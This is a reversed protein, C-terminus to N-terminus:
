RTSGPPAGLDREASIKDWALYAGYGLFMAALIFGVAILPGRRRTGFRAVHDPLSPFRTDPIDQAISVQAEPARRPPPEPADPADFVRPSVRRPPPEPADPADFVRPSVGAEVARLVSALAPATPKAPNVEPLPAPARAPPAPATPKAPNVEPLPAPAQAPQAPATPARLPAAALVEAQAELREAMDKTRRLTPADSAFDEEHALAPGLHASPLPRPPPRETARAQISLEHGSPERAPAPQEAGAPRSAREGGASPRAPSPRGPEPQPADEGLLADVAASSHRGHLGDPRSLSSPTRLERMAVLSSSSQEIATEFEAALQKRQEAAELARQITRSRRAIREALKNNVYAAVDAPTTPGCCKMLASELARQMEDATAFRGDAGYSLATYTIEAVEPPIGRIPEPPLGQVVRHLTAIQNDAEYPTRGSLLHYLMIGCAWVDSRRDVTKGLAQEPSMYAVKGKIVGAATDASIRDIAKAVGFDILKVEGSKSLLVNSPSIDRHVVELSEGQVNRLEHAAHLGACTDALIRLVINLPIKEGQGHVTRRVAAVSDGDIWELVLYLTDGQQGLDLIQAVNPHRIGAVIRAEDLFMNVFREEGQHAAAMTKIAVLREFGMKGQLRAVWVQAMGGQAVPCLLEYRDLLQGPVLTPPPPTSGMWFVNEATEPRTELLIPDIAVFGM